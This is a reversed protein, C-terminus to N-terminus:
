RLFHELFVLSFFLSITWLSTLRWNESLFKNFVIPTLTPKNISSTYFMYTSKMISTFLIQLFSFM